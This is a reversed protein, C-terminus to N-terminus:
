PRARAPRTTRGTWVKSMALERRRGTRSAQEPSGIRPNRAVRGTVIVGSLRSRRALALPRRARVLGDRRASPRGTCGAEGDPPVSSSALGVPHKSQEVGGVDMEAGTV